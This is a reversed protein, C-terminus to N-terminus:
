AVKQLTLTSDEVNFFQAQNKLYAFVAADTGTMWVQTPLNKLIDFLADRRFADLHAGVEDLLLLPCQGQEQTQARMQALLISLLLAKQEGTSCLSAETAKAAHIVKFDATHPGTLGAGDAYARRSRCLYAAFEDEVVVAAKQLLAQEVMGTLIIEPRPFLAEEGTNLYASIREVVDLRSAAIAVGTAVMQEELGMLWAKDSCGERLLCSWQKFATNYASLRNTHNADFAQVLRDLFRRRSVPDGCFLRDQAPTLWLCRMIEGLESQKVATRGDIRIQRRESGDVTGTGIKSFGHRTRVGASVSWRAPLQIIAPEASVVHGTRRAVDSLRAGRLGRGATLFSVSELINTKGAGNRGTLVIPVFSEDLVMDLFAYSRFNALRLQVVGTKEM